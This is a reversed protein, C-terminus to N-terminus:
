PVIAVLIPAYPSREGAHKEQVTYYFSKERDDDTFEPLFPSHTDISVCLSEEIRTLITSTSLRWHIGAEHQGGPKGKKVNTGEMNFRMGSMNPPVLLYMNTQDLQKNFELHNVPVLDQKTAMVQKNVHDRTGNKVEVTSNPHVIELINYEIKWINYGM